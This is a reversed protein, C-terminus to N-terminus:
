GPRAASARAAAANLERIRRDYLKALTDRNSVGDRRIRFEAQDRDVLLPDAGAAIAREYADRMQRHQATLARSACVTQDAPTPEAKCTSAKAPVPAAPKTEKPTRVTPEVKALQVRAPPPKPVVPAVKPAVPAAKVVPTPQPAASVPEPASVPAAATEVQRSVDQVAPEPRAQPAYAAM